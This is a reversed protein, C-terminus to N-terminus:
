AIVAAARNYGRCRPAVNIRPGVSRILTLAPFSPAAAQRGPKRREEGNLAGGHERASRALFGRDPRGLGSSRFAAPGSQTAVMARDNPRRKRRTPGNAVAKV